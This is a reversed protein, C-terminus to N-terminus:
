IILKMQEDLSPERGLMREMYMRSVRRAARMVKKRLVDSKELLNRDCRDLSEEQAARGRTMPPKNGKNGRLARKLKTKPATRNAASRKNM